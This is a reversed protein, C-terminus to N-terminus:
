LCNIDSSAQSIEGSIETFFKLETESKNNLIGFILSFFKM